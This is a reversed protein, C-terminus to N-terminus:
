LCVICAQQPVPASHIRFCTQLYCCITRSPTLLTLNPTGRCPHSQFMNYELSHLPLPKLYRKLPKCAPFHLSFPRPHRKPPKCATFHIQLTRLHSKMPICVSSHLTMTIHSPFVEKTTVMMMIYGFLYHKFFLTGTRHHRNTYM